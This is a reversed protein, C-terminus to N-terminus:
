ARLFDKASLPGRQGGSRLCEWIYWFRLPRGSPIGESEWVTPIKDGPRLERNLMAETLANIVQQVVSESNVKKLYSINQM